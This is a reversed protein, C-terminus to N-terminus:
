AKHARVVAPAELVGLADADVAGVGLHVGPGHGDLISPKDDLIQGLHRPIAQSHAAGRALDPNGRADKKIATLTGPVFEAPCMGFHGFATKRNISM